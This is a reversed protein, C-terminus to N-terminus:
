SKRVVDGRFWVNVDCSHLFHDGVISARSQQVFEGQWGRLFYISFLISFICGSTLTLLTLGKVGM